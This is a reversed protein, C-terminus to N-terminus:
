FVHLWQVCNCAHRGQRQCDAAATRSRSRNHSASHACNRADAYVKVWHHICHRNPKRNRNRNCTCRCTCTRERRRQRKRSHVLCQYNPGRDCTCEREPARAYVPTCGRSDAAHWPRTIAAPCGPRGAAPAGRKAPGCRSASRGDSQGIGPQKCVLACGGDCGCRCRGGATRCGPRAGAM